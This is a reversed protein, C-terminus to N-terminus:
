IKKNSIEHCVFSDLYRRFLTDAIEEGECIEVTITYLRQSKNCYWLGYIGYVESGYSKYRVPQYIMRHGSKTTEIVAGETMDTLGEVCRAEEIMAELADELLAPQDTYIWGVVVNETGKRNAVILLGSNGDAIDNFIGKESISMREPYEFSFGYKSYTEFETIQESSEMYFVGISAILFLTLFGTIVCMAIMGKKSAGVLGRYALYLLVVGLTMEGLVRAPSSTLHPLRSLIYVIGFSGALVAGISKLINKIGM